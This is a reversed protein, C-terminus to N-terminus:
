QPRQLATAVAQARDAAGLKILVATVHRGVMRASIGLAAAIDGDSCGTALLDLVERQRRTLGCSDILTVGNDSWGRLAALRERARRSAARAGMEEFTALASEVASVDGGLRALAADYPCGRDIWADAAAQWHGSSELEYPTIPDASAAETPGGGLTVWRRLLGVVWPNVNSPPTAALGASAHTRAAADDGALWATEARAARVLSMLFVDDAQAGAGAEDFIGAIPQDGQRARILGVTLLPLIRHQPSLEPRTLVDDACAIARTWDGGHLCALAQAGIVGAEFLGLDHTACWATTEAVFVKARDLEHHVAATWCMIMGIIAAHQPLAPNDMAERWDAEVEDWGTNTRFVTALGAYSRAQLVVTEDGLETGLAIAREVYGTVGPDYALASIQAMNVLSWALQLSPGLPELIQLSARGAETAATTGEFGLLMLSLWRWDEGEELRDGLAHRLAIAARWSMMAADVQGCLLSCFAHQEHWLVKQDDAVADAHALALGFLASAERNAGLAAARGGASPGYRIVAETEGAQDAHFTLAALMDPEVPPIALEALALRHLPRRQYDPLRDLTARRALEHRFAVVDGDAVLVGADLCEDLGSAAVPCVAHLLALRARPGCVAVAHATDRAATSLRGSRGWVAESVSRPLSQESLARPGAALVETVFFPNGGTLAYLQDANVGSGAALVGVAERSLPAIGIRTLAQCSAIDGLAVILPHQGGLEDDRYSVVLLVPLTAIRRAVFRLLDLTAGDAWHVDEILWVWRAGDGLMALLRRYLTATDMADVADILDKAEADGLETLADILPGLPRPTAVPDCWGRLLRTSRPLQALLKAIVASKGVGAEGRLLVLQGSGKAARQTLHGLQTFVSERELLGGATIQNYQPPMSQQAAGAARAPRTGRHSSSMNGHLAMADVPLGQRGQVQQVLEGFEEATPRQAPQRAMAAEVAAAVDDIVGHVRLDPVPEAAIRAFQAIVHEGSRREFPAHGTLGCFLTAGLAYVDSAGSPPDGSIIEPATFAPSGVYYGSATKEAAEDTRAVGFDCLAPEGYDTMLINAPKVDRHVIGLRHASELAAAMKVGVRLVEDVGLVGTEGIRDALSGRGCFPMVLFPQGGAIEGIQLVSVINPHGTLAAMAHQERMFRARDDDLQATLVKVAVPRGLGVQRCRFVVGFGGRGVEVADVFGATALAAVVGGTSGHSERPAGGPAPRDVDL